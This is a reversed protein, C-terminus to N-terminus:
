VREELLKECAEKLSKGGEEVGRWGELMDKVEEDIIDISEILTDCTKIHKTVDEMHARFHAEQSHAVSKDILSFWDYFQQPTEV